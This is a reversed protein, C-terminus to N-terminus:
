LTEAQKSQNTEGNLFPLATWDPPFGMMEMVFLPNLQSTKGTTQFARKQLSDQNRKGTNKAPNDDATPTPLLQVLRALGVSGDTGNQNIKRPLGKTAKFIDNKGIIADTTADSTVPTPLLGQIALYDVYSELYSIAIKHGKRKQRTEYGEEGRARPTPLLSLDMLTSRRNVCKKMGQTQVTPLLGCEIEKTRPTLAQLQFYIRKYRTGKLKWILRCRKSYWGPMGLLLEPFTKAWLGDHNFKGFQELCKRGYIANTKKGKENVQLVTHSVHSDAQLSILEEEGFLSTQKQSTMM